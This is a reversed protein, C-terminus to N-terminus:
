VALGAGDPPGMGALEGASRERSPAPATPLGADRWAAFGGVVDGTGALGLDVLTAAALISSYGHDCMLVIRRDPDVHPNRWESDPALRWELVTRPVHLSGPVIGDRVRDHDSRIDVLLSGGEVAALAEAPKLRVIRGAAAEVLKALTPMPPDDVDTGGGAVIRAQGPDRDDRVRMQRAPGSPERGFAELEERSGVQDEVCAVDGGRGREVHQPLEPRELRHVPVHVIGVKPCREGFLADDLEPARADPHHV